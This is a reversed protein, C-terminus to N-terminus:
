SDDAPRAGGAPCNFHCEEPTVEGSLETRAGATAPASRSWAERLTSVAAIVGMLAGLGCVAERATISRKTHM